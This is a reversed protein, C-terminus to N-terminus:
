ARSGSGPRKGQALQRIAAPALGALLSQIESLSHGAAQLRKIAVVQDVHAETYLARRDRIEVPRDMLGLTTYYRLTRADPRDSIQGNGQALGAEHVREGIRASLEDLTFRDRGSTKM